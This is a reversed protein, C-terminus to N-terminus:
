IYKILKMIKLCKLLIEHTKNDKAIIILGSTDKDLRHVIGQGNENLDSLNDFKYMIANVLTNENQTETPHVVMNYPKNIVAM